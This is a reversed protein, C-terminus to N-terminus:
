RVDETRNECWWRPRDAAGDQADAPGAQEAACKRLLPELQLLIHSAERQSDERFGRTASLNLLPAFTWMVAIGDRTTDINIAGEANACRGALRYGYPESWWFPMAISLLFFAPNHL